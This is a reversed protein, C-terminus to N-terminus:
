GASFDLEFPHLRDFDYLGAVIGLLWKGFAGDRRGSHDVLYSYASYSAM